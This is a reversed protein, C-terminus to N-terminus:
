PDSVRRMPGDVRWGYRVTQSGHQAASLWRKSPLYAARLWVVMLVHWCAHCCAEDTPVVCHALM